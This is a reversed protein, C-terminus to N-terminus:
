KRNKWLSNFMWEFSKVMETSGTMLVLTTLNTTDHQGLFFLFIIDDLLIFSTYLQENFGFEIKMNAFGPFTTVSKKLSKPLKESSVLYRFDLKSTYSTSLITASKRWDISQSGASVAIYVRNEVKRLQQFIIAEADRFELISVGPTLEAGIGNTYVSQLHHGLEKIARERFDFDSKMGRLVRDISESPPVIQYSQKGNKKKELLYKATLKSLIDYIRTRPLGTLEALENTKCHGHELIASYVKAENISLGM